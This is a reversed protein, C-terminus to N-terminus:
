VTRQELTLRVEVLELREEREIRRVEQRVTLLRDFGGDDASTEVRPDGLPQAVWEVREGGLLQELPARDDDLLAEAATHRRPLFGVHPLPRARRGSPPSRSPTLRDTSAVDLSAGALA